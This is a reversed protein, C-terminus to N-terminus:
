PDQAKSGEAKVFQCAERALAIWDGDGQAIAIWQKMRRGRRPAFREAVGSEALEDVRSKPLKAVLKGRSLMAFIKGNVSLVSNSSFMRGCKVGPDRAFAAVVPAFSPDVKIEANSEARKKVAM